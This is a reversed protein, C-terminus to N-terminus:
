ETRARDMGGWGWLLLWNRGAKGVRSGPTDMSPNPQTTDRRQSQPSGPTAPSPTTSPTSPASATTASASSTPAPAATTPSPPSPTGTAQSPSIDNPAKSLRSRPTNTWPVAPNRTFTWEPRGVDLNDACLAEFFGRAHGPATFVIPRSVEVQRMSIDWWSGAARDAETLPLPLVAWWRECFVRITGPGLTDRIRRLGTPGETAAFGNDLETFGIGAATAERKAPLAAANSRRNGRLVPRAACVADRSPILPMGGNGHRAGPRRAALSAPVPNRSVGTDERACLYAYLGRVSSLRRAITRAALGAEGDELRVVRGGRRLARQATLFGFVDAATVEAPPKAVVGFFIKLDSAVALWTNTRARIAVFALYDDLLPHGLRIVQIGDDATSRILCPM